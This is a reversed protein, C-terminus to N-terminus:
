WPPWPAAADQRRLQGRDSGGVSAGRVVGWLGCVCVHDFGSSRRLPLVARWDRDRLLRLRYLRIVRRLQRDDGGRRRKQAGGCRGGTGGDRGKRDSGRDRAWDEWAGRGPAVNAGATPRSPRTFYSPLGLFAGLRPRVAPAGRVAGRWSTLLPLVREVRLRGCGKRGYRRHRGRLADRYGPPGRRSLGQLRVRQIPDRFSRFTTFSVRLWVPSCSASTSRSPTISASKGTVTGATARWRIHPELWLWERGQSCRHRGEKAKRGTSQAQRAVEQPDAAARAAAELL